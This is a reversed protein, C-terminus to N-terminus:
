KGDGGDVDWMIINAGVVLIIAMETASEAM